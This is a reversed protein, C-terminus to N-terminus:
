GGKEASPNAAKDKWKAIIGRGYEKIIELRGLKALLRMAEANDPREFSM